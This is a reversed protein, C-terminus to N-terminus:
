ADPCCLPLPADSEFKLGAPTHKNQLAKQSQPTMTYQLTKQPQPMMTAQLLVTAYMM